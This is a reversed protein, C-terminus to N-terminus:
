KKGTFAFHWLGYNTESHHVIRILKDLCLRLVWDIFIAMVDCIKLPHKIHKVSNQSKYKTALTTSQYYLWLLNQEWTAKSAFDMENYNTSM